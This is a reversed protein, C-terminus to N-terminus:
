HECHIRVLVPLWTDNVSTFRRSSKKRIQSTPGGFPCPLMHTPGQRPKRAASGTTSFRSAAISDDGRSWYPFPAMFLSLMTSRVAAVVRPLHSDLCDSEEM